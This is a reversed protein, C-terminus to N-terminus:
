LFYTKCFPNALYSSAAEVTIAQLVRNPGDQPKARESQAPPLSAADPLAGMRLRKHSFYYLPNFRYGTSVRHSHNHLACDRRDINAGSPDLLHQSVKEGVARLIAVRVRLDQHMQLTSYPRGLHRDGVLSFADRRLCLSAETGAEV